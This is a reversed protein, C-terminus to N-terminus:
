LIKVQLDEKIIRKKYETKTERVKKTAINRLKRYKVFDRYHLENYILLKSQFHITVFYHVRASTKIRWTCLGSPHICQVVM